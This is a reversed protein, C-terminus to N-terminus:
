QKEFYKSMRLINMGGPCTETSCDQQESIEGSCNGGKTEHSAVRRSRIQTGGGCTKSCTSWDRWSEWICDATLFYFYLIITTMILSSFIILNHLSVLSFLINVLAIAKTVDQHALANWNITM